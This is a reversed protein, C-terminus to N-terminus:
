EEDEEPADKKFSWGFRTKGKASKAAKEAEAARRRKAVQSARASAHGEPMAAEAAAHAAASPAPARLRAEVLPAPLPEHPATEFVLSSVIDHAGAAILRGIAEAADDTGLEFVQHEPLGQAAFAPMLIEHVFDLAGREDLRDVPFTTQAVSWEGNMARDSSAVFCHWSPGSGRVGGVRVANPGKAIWACAWRSLEAM